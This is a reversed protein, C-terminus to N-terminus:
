HYLTMQRAHMCLIRLEMRLVVGVINEKQSETRLQYMQNLVQPQEWPMEIGMPMSLYPCLTGKGSISHLIQFNCSGIKYHTFQILFFINVIRFFIRVVSEQIPKVPPWNSSDTTLTTYVGAVYNYEYHMVRGSIGM